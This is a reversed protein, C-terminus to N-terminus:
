VDIGRKFGHVLCTVIAGHTNWRLNPTNEFGVFPSRTQGATRFGGFADRQVYGLSVEALLVIGLLIALLFYAFPLRRPPPANGVVGLLLAAFGLGGVALASLFLLYHWSYGLIVQDRSHHDAFPLLVLLIPLCLLGWEKLFFRHHM